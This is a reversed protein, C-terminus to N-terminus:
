HQDAERNRLSSHVLYHTIAQQEKPQLKNAIDHMVSQPDNRRTGNRFDNLQKNLYAEHQADLWPTDLRSSNHCNICAALGPRGENFLTKGQDFLNKQMTEVSPQPPEQGAFYRAITDIDQPLIEETIAQMQGGDNTRQGDRFASFQSKIYDAKQGALKPFKAMHSNGDLGHCMGCIEWPAMGEKDIMGAEAKPLGLGLMLALASHKFKVERMNIQTQM